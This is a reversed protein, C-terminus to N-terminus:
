LIRELRTVESVYQLSAVPDGKLCIAENFDVLAEADRNLNYYTEGRMYYYWSKTGDLRIAESYHQLADEYLGQESLREGQGFCLLGGIEENTM